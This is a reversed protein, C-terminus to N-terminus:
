AVGALPTPLELAIRDGAVATVWELTGEALDLVIHSPVDGHLSGPNLVITEGVRDWWRGGELHPAEHLHGSVVLTPRHRRIAEAFRRSGAAPRGPPSRSVRTDAPPEHHVWLWPGVHPPHRLPSSQGGDTGALLGAWPWLTAAIGTWAVTGGDVFLGGGAADALWRAEGRPGDVDHNGSVALVPVRRALRRLADAMTRRQTEIAEHGGLDLLDGALIVAGYADAVEEIWCIQRMNYHIDAVLLLRM